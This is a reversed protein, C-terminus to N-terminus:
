SEDESSSYGQEAIKMAKEFQEAFEAISQGNSLDIVDKPVMNTAFKPANCSLLNAESESEIFRLEAQKQDLDFNMLEEWDYMISDTTPCFPNFDVLYVKERNYEVYVDFVYNLSDFHECVHEEFFRYILLEITPKMKPLFEYYNVDRQCIGIIEQNKVFCRFEMSPQLDFWKRLVLDFTPRDQKQDACIEYAHNLDHNIFDSSKLLLFVDFPSTCKLTQTTAIWAADRPSSWNLKPFVAGEYEEIAEKIQKEIEPFHPTNDNQEEPYEEQDSDVEEIFAARPQGDEPLFISDANLYDIFDDPLHIIKSKFTVTKFRPYWSSFSCNDVEQCTLVNSM